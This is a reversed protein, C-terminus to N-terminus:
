LNGRMARQMLFDAFTILWRFEFMPKTPIIL